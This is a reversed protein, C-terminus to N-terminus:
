IMRIAFMKCVGVCYGCTLCKAGEIVSRGESESIAENPCTIRCEGCNNCLSPVVFFAKKATQKLSMDLEKKAGEFYDLNFKLEEESVMGVAISAIGPIQRVFSMAEHYRDILTGGGLAKMAYVGKGADLCRSIAQLMDERSGHLIGIGSVNIIPFVVDIDGQLAAANVARVSHSSIGVAKIIGRAKNELLCELAGRRDTFVTDDCRAAHLHFIDITDVDLKKLAENVANQMSEYDSATSKTAIVPRIGTSKIARRIPEYTVYGQATDIFNIGCELAKEVIKTCDAVDMNKQMPGFPLAGFCIETVELGTQGLTNKKM